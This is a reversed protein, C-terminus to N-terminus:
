LAAFVNPAVFQVVFEHHAGVLVVVHAQPKGRGIVIVSQLRFLDILKDFVTYVQENDGWVLYVGDSGGDVFGVVPANGDDQEVALGVRALVCSKNSGVIELRAFRHAFVDGAM